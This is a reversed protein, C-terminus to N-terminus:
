IVNRLVVVVFSIVTLPIYIYLFVVMREALLAFGKQLWGVRSVVLSLLLALAFTYAWWPGQHYVFEEWFAPARNEYLRLMVSGELVILWIMGMSTFRDNWWRAPLVFGVLLLIALVLVSETFAVVFAYAYVSLIEWINLVFMWSPLKWFSRLLTWGYIMFAATAYVGVISQRDPLRKLLRNM